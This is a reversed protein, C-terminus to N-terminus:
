ENELSDLLADMETGLQEAEDELDWAEELNTKTDESVESEDEFDEDSVEEVAEEVNTDSEEEEGSCATFGYGILLIGVTYFVKKM